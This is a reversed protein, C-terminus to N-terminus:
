RAPHIAKQNQWKRQKRESEQIDTRELRQRNAELQQCFKEYASPPFGSPAFEQMAGQLYLISRYSQSYQDISISKSKEEQKLYM